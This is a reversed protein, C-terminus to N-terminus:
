FIKKLFRLGHYSTSTIKKRYVEPHHIFKLSDEYMLGQILGGWMFGHVMDSQFIGWSRGITQVVILLPAFIMWHHIHFIKNKAEINFRPFFEIRKIKASPFKRNIKSSPRTTLHFLIFSAVGSILTEM